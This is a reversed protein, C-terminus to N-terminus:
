NGIPQPQGDESLFARSQSRQLRPKALNDPMLTSQEEAIKDSEPNGFEVDVFDVKLKKVTKVGIM